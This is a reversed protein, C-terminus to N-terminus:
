ARASEAASAAPAPGPAVVRETQQASVPPVIVLQGDIVQIVLEAAVTTIVHYDTV